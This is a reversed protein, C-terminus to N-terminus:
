EKMCGLIVKQFEEVSNQACYNDNPIDVEGRAVKRYADVLMEPSIDDIVLGLGYSKVLDGLLGRNPAIVPKHFQAAYGILGSSQATRRYPTLIADCAMCMSAFTYYSCYKDIVVIQVEGQLENVLSYFRTKIDDYVKGAFAFSFKKREEANLLKISELIDVTSKNECLTGFQVFLHKEYSIGYGGRFDTLSDTPIPVFPDPLPVFKNTNYLKNLREASAKDNLVFVKWFVSAGSIIWYILKDFLVVIRSKREIEYLYIKYIVGLLKIKRLLIPAFPLLEMIVNCYVVNAQYKKVYRRLITLNDWSNRLMKWLKGSSCTDKGDGFLDIHINSSYPWEMNDKVLNFSEPLVFFFSDEMDNMASMYLHHIYELHHGGITKNFIIINM